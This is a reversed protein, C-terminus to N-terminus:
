FVFGITYSHIGGLIGMTRYSYDLKLIKNGVRHLEIGGGASLGFESNKMFLGKYGLRLSFRGAGPVYYQYQSCINLHENNNNPHLADVAFTLRQKMTLIPQISIGMRFILPLEWENLEYRAPVFEYNGNDDPEPDIPYKLNIGDYRM